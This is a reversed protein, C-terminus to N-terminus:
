RRRPRLMFADSTTLAVMLRDVRHGSKEFAKTLTALTPEDAATPLLGQAHSFLRRVFCARADPHARLQMALETPTKFDKGDLDGSADIPQGKDTERFTGIADFYELGLGIPDMRSHCSICSPNGTHEDLQERLSAAPNSSVKLTTDTGPPPPPVVQCLLAEVIFKGRQTPSTRQPLAYGALIAGSGLVGRRPSDQPLLQKRLTDPVGKPVQPLGYHRSLENNAFVVRGDFISLYDDPNAFVLDDVRALLDERMADRLTPTWTKFIATDKFANELHDLGFMDGAFQSFARRARAHRLMREAQKEIGVAGNLEGRAASDLLDDDPVSGWLFSSLRAAMEFGSYRAPSDATESVYLFHPSQLIASVAFRMGMLADHSEQTIDKALGVFRALERATLPRRFARRGFHALAKPMCSDQAATTPACGLRTAMARADPFARSVVDEMAGEIRGVGSPSVALDRAGARLLGDTAQDPELLVVPLDVDLLDKVAAAVERTPLKFIKPVPAPPPDAIQHARPSACGLLGCSLGAVLWGVHPSRPATEPRLRM